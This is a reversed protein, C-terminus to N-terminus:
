EEYNVPMASLLIEEVQKASYTSQGVRPWTQQTTTFSTESQVKDSLTIALPLLVTSPWLKAQAMLATSLGDRTCEGIASEVIFPPYESDISPTNWDSQKTTRQEQRM